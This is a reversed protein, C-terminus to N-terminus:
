RLEDDRIEEKDALKERKVSELQGIIMDVEREEAKTREIESLLANLKEKAKENAALASSLNTEAQDVLPSLTDIQKQLDANGVELAEIKGELRAITELCGNLTEQHVRNAERAAEVQTRLGENASKLTEVEGLLRVNEAELEDFRATEANFERLKEAIESTFKQVEADSRTQEARIQSEM